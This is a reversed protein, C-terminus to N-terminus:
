DNEPATRFNPLDLPEATMDRRKYTGKASTAAPAPEAKKLLLYTKAHSDRIEFEDGPRHPRGAYRLHKLARMRM